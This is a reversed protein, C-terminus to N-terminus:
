YHGASTDPFKLLCNLIIISTTKCLLLTACTMVSSLIKPTFLSEGEGEEWFIPPSATPDSLSLSNWTQFQSSECLSPAATPCLGLRSLISAAPTSAPASCRTLILGPRSHTQPVLTRPVGLAGEPCLYLFADSHIRCLCRTLPAGHPPEGSAQLPGLPFLLPETLKM